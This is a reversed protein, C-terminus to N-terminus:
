RQQLQRISQEIATELYAQYFDALRLGVIPAALQQGDAAFFAVVPVLKIKERGAFAAHSTPRGQFDILPANSDQNIQRVVVRTGYERSSTLPLLYNNRVTACYHCDQRSFLVILPGGQRGAQAAESRLDTAAPLDGAHAHSLTLWLLPFLYRLLKGTGRLCDPM